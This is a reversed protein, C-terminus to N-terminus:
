HSSPLSLLDAACEPGYTLIFTVEAILSSSTLHGGLNILVLHNIFRDIRVRIQTQPATQAALFLRQSLM